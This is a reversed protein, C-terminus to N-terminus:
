NAENLGPAPDLNTSSVSQIHGVLPAVHTAGRNSAVYQRIYISYSILLQLNYGFFSINKWYVLPLNLKTKEVDKM